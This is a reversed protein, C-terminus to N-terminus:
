SNDDAITLDLHIDGFHIGNTIPRPGFGDSIYLCNQPVSPVIVSEELVVQGDSAGEYVEHLFSSLELPFTSM